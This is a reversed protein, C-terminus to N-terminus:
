KVLEYTIEESAGTAHSTMKTVEYAENPSVPVDKHLTTPTMVDTYTENRRISRRM